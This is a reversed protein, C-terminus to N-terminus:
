AALDYGAKGIISKDAATQARMMDWERICCTEPADLSKRPDPCPSCSFCREVTEGTELDTVIGVNIGDCENCLRVGVNHYWTQNKVPTRKWPEPSTVLHTTCPKHRM